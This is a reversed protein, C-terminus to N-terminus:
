MVVVVIVSVAPECSDSSHLSDMVTVVSWKWTYQINRDGGTRETDTRCAGFGGGGLPRCRCWPRRGLQTWCWQKEYESITLRRRKTQSLSIVAWFTESGSQAAWVSHASALVQLQMKRESRFKVRRTFGRGGNDVSNEERRAAVTVWLRGNGYFDCHGSRLVVQTCDQPEKDVVKGM